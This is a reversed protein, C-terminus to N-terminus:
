MSSIVGIRPAAPSATKMVPLPKPGCVNTKKSLDAAATNWVDGFRIFHKTGARDDEEEVEEEVCSKSVVTYTHLAFM